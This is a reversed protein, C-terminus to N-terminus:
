AAMFRVFSARYSRTFRRSLIRGCLLARVAHIAQVFMYQHRLHGFSIDTQTCFSCEFATGPAILPPITSVHCLRIHQVIIITDRTDPFSRM